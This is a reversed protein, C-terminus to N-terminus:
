DKQAKGLDLFKLALALLVIGVPLVLMEFTLDSANLLIVELFKVFLVIIIMEGLIVKLHNMSGIRIWRFVHGEPLEIRRIFLTAVGYAFMMFVMGIMFADISQVVLAVSKNFVTSEDGLLTPPDNLFSLYARVTKTVALIFMLAAGFVSTVVAVYSMCRFVLFSDKRLPPM